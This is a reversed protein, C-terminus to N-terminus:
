LRLGSSIKTSCYLFTYAGIFGVYVNFNWNYGLTTNIWVLLLGCFYAGFVNPLTLRAHRTIVTAFFLALLSGATWSAIKLGLYLLGTSHSAIIAIASLIVTIILTDRKYFKEISVKNVAKHRFIDNYLCSSLANITSDLTSMTAALVGAVMLGKLGVPFYETIFHAFIKDNPISPATVGQYHAWLLSGISLFLLGVSISVFTSSIIATQAGKLSKNATLRQAFDQDVGHTAMDFLIGGFVGIIFPLPNSLDFFSTKGASSAMSMLDLWSNNSITPILYHATVGGIIFLFMQVMDTRVVAKLGGVMTYFFTLIAIASIAIYIGIDFFQAVLISGAFLRVGIAIIKSICYFIATTMQGRSDGNIGMVSYVTLGLNYMKILMIKAILIRGVLAGLYIQIFSYDSGFAVAPIGLFTLASVETAVISCLSEFVTLSKGALYQDEVIKRPSDQPMSAQKSKIALTFIGALYLAIILYDPWSVFFNM